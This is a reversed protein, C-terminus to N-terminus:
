SGDGRKRLWGSRTVNKQFAAAVLSASSQISMLISLCTTYFKHHQFCSLKDVTPRYRSQPAALMHPLSVCVFTSSRWILGSKFHYWYRKTVCIWLVEGLEVELGLKTLRILHEDTLRFGVSTIAFRLFSFMLCPRLLSDKRSYPTSLYDIPRINPPAVRYLGTETSCLGDLCRSRWM